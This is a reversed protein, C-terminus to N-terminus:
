IGTEYRGEAQPNSPKKVLLIGQNM